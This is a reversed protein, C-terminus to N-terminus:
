TSVRHQSIGHPVSQGLENVSVFVMKDVTVITARTQKNRAYCKLTLSSKGFKIVECGIEVIEGQFAPSVFNIESMHATVVRPTKLQCSTFIASEEDIWELMRGGFLTGAGNLDRALVMRRGKWKMLDDIM